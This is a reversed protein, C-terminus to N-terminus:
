RDVESAKEDRMGQEVAKVAEKRKEQEKRKEFATKLAPSLHSRRTAAKPAKHAKGPTRGNKSAALELMVPSASSSAATSDM